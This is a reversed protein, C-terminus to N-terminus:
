DDLRQRHLVALGPRPSREPGARRAAVLSSRGCIGRRRLHVHVGWLRVACQELRHFRAAETLLQGRLCPAVSRRAPESSKFRLIPREVLHYSASAFEVVIGTGFVAPPAVVAPAADSALAAHVAADATGVLEGAQVPPLALGGARVPPLALGGEM